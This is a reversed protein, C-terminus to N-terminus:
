GINEILAHHWEAGYDLGLESYLQGRASAGIKALPEFFLAGILVGFENTHIKEAIALQSMNFLGIMNMPMKPEWEVRLPAYPTVIQTIAIGGEVRAPPQAFGPLAAYVDSIKDLMGPNVWIEFATPDAGNAISEKLADNIITRKLEAGAVDFRNTQIASVLGRTRPAVTTSGRTYQYQGNIITHNLDLKIQAVRRAVQFDFENPVNNAAGALNVGGLADRNTQKMYSVAATRQFIQVVNYQQDRETTEPEPAILSATESINPQTPEDMDYGSSLVFEVSQVPIRGGNKGRAYINDLLRTAEDTKTYLMGSYNITDTLTIGVNSM